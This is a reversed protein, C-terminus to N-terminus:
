AVVGVSKAAAPPVRPLHLVVTTGAGLRSELTVRGGHLDVIARVIALGLGSGGRSGDVQYHPEFVRAQAEDPIGIGTDAVEVWVGDPGPGLRMAVKGGSDTFRFANSLLNNLVLRLLTRDGVVRLPGDPVSVSFGIDAHMALPEFSEKAAQGVADIRVDEFCPELVGRDIRALALMNEILTQLLLGNRRIAGMADPKDGGVEGIRLRGSALLEAYALISTLPTKLEHTLHNFARVRRDIEERRTTADRVALVTHIEGGAQSPRTCALDCPVVSGDAMPAPM